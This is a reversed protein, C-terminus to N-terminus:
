RVSLTSCASNGEFQSPGGILSLRKRTQKLKPPLGVGALITSAPWAILFRIPSSDGSLSNAYVVGSALANPKRMIDDSRAPWIACRM